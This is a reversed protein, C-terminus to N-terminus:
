LKKTEHLERRLKDNETRKEAKNYWERYRKKLATIPNINHKYLFVNYLSRFFTFIIDTIHLRFHSSFHILFVYRKLYAQMEYGLKLQDVILLKVFVERSSM